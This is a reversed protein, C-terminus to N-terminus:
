LVSPISGKNIRPITFNDSGSLSNSFRKSLIFKFLLSFYTVKNFRLM